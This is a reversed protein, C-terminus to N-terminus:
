KALEAQLRAIEAHAEAAAEEATQRAVAESEAQEQHTRLRKGTDLRFLQLDVNDHFLRLELQESILSGDSEPPIVQYTEGVLRYGQM